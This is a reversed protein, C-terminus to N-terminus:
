QAPGVSPITRFAKNILPHLEELAGTAHLDPISNGRKAHPKVLTFGIEHLGKGASRAQLHLSAKLARQM